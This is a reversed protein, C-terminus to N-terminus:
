VDFLGGLIANNHERRKISFKRRKKKYLAILHKISDNPPKVHALVFGDHTEWWINGSRTYIIRIYNGM